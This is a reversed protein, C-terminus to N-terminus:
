TTPVPVSLDDFPWLLALSFSIATFPEARVEDADFWTGDRQWHEGVLSFAELGRVRPDLHWLHRVGFEAYIRRKEGRDDTSPSLTELVWDPAVEIFAKSVAAPPLRERKWGALDPVVVNPGLHLEPEDAFVWGGPGNTGFQFPSGIIASAAFTASGHRPVPRPHTVLVGDLIEAVLPAAELDAYTATKTRVALSTTM